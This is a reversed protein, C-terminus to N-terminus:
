LPCLSRPSLCHRAPASRKQGSGGGFLHTNLVTRYCTLLPKEVCSTYLLSAGNVHAVFRLTRAQPSCCSSWLDARGNEWM